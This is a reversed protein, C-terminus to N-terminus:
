KGGETNLSQEYLACIATDQENMTQIIEPLKDILKQQDEAKQIAANRDAEKQKIKKLEEDTYEIYENYTQCDELLIEHPADNPIAGDYDIVKGNELRTIWHGREPEDIIIKIDKGGTAPYEKVIEEHTKEPVDIVYSHTINRKKGILYGKTLDPEKIANGKSDLILM